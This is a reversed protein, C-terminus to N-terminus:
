AECVEKLKNLGNQYDPGLFKDMMRGFIRGIPNMGNDTEFDWTVMCTGDGNDRIIWAALADGRGKFKLEVQVLEMPESVKIEMSGEGVKKSEGKWSYHAGVGAEINNYTHLANLDKETWPSWNDVFLKLNNLYPWITQASANILVSREMKAIRPSSFGMLLILLILGGVSLAIITLASM